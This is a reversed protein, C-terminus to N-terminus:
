TVLEIYTTIFHFRAQRSVWQETSLSANLLPSTIDGGPLCALRMEVQM